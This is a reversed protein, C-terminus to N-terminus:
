RVDYESVFMHWEILNNYSIALLARLQGANLDEARHRAKLFSITASNDLGHEVVLHGGVSDVGFTGRVEYSPAWRFEEAFSRM